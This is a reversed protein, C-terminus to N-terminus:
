ESIEEDTIFERLLSTVKRRSFVNREMITLAEEIKNIPPIKTLIFWCISLSIM